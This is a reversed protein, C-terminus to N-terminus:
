PDLRLRDLKPSTLFALDYAISVDEVILADVYHETNRAFVPRCGVVGHLAKLLGLRGHIRTVFATQVFTTPTDLRKTTLRFVRPDIQGAAPMPLAWGVLTILIISGLASRM